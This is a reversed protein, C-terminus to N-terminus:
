NKTIHTLSVGEGLDLTFDPAYFGALAEPLVDQNRRIIIAKSESVESWDSIGTITQLQNIGIYIPSTTTDGVYKCHSHYFMCPMIDLDSDSYAPVDGYREIQAYDSKEVGDNVIHSVVLTQTSAYILVTTIALFHFRASLLKWAFLTCVFALPFLFAVYRGYLIPQSVWSYAYLTAFTLCTLLFAIRTQKANAQVTQLKQSSFFRKTIFGLSGAFGALALVINLRAFSTYYTPLEPSLENFVFLNYLIKLSEIPDFMLWTEASRAQAQSLLVPVWPLYLLLVIGNALLYSTLKQWNRQTFWIATLTILQVIWFFIGLNHAYLLAVQATVYLAGNSKTKLGQACSYFVLYTLLMFLSYVRLEVSFYLMLPQTFVLLMLLSTLGKKNRPINQRIEKALLIQLALIPLLSLLRLVPAHPGVMRALPHLLLYYLPPTFDKASTAIIEGISQQALLYSFGEDRWISKNTSIYISLLTSLLVLLPVLAKEYGSLKSM